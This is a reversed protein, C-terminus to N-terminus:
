ISQMTEQFIGNIDFAVMSREVEDSWYVLTIKPSPHLKVAIREKPIGYENTVAKQIECTASVSVPEFRFPECVELM